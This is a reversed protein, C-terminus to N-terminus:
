TARVFDATTFNMGRSQAFYIVRGIARTGVSNFLCRPKVGIGAALEERSVGLMKTIADIRKVTDFRPQEKFEDCCGVVKGAAVSRQIFDFVPAAPRFWEFRERYAALAQHAYSEAVYGGRVIALTKLAVPSLTDLSRIRSAPDVSAGIKIFGGEGAQVFYVSM